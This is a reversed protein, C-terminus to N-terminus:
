LRHIGSLRRAVVLYTSCNFLKASKCEKLKNHHATTTSGWRALSSDVAGREGSIRGQQRQCTRECHLLGHTQLVNLLSQFRALIQFHLRELFIQPLDENNTGRGKLEHRAAYCVRRMSQGHLCITILQWSYLSGLYPPCMFECLSVRLSVSVCYV